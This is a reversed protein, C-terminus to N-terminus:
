DWSYIDGTDVKEAIGTTADPADDRKNKGEKQYKVMAEYYEPFRSKWNHPFYIHEMVWTSNSLIRAAKNKSQHFPRFVTKNTKYKERMIREVNRSYSRGGNNSEIDAVNVKDEYMMKAQAPETIEMGEKTYLVNLVYAENQFTVGYDISCLYDNGTDATDTYNKIYKFQPLPGDYTKFSTYLRGKLDIPEQQYNASAVDEGMVKKKAEYSKRSLVEECLMTGDDQLAKMNIHRIKYGNEALEELARGALDDSAWRTMIIIIKGGEELRSLMTNTFWEWHKEKLGENCAEEYSKILDDIILLDVNLINEYLDFQSNDKSFKSENIRDFMVPATQYLVTKGMKLIENAICNTLFTKGVGTNGTFILNKEEPDEFNKIFDQVKEQIIKMNERPSLDSKYLDKNKKDSFIKLNFNSFNERELNGINSKNYAIDFIRQKLCSCMTTVNDKQIYGTDKCLKCDFHPNLYNNEKSLQKIFANKEKILSANKKKLDSVLKHKEKSSALIISKSIKISNQAIEKEIEALRPNVALLDKKRLEAEQIHRNRKEDYERLIQKLLSNDM